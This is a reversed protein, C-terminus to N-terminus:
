GCWIGDASLFIRANGGSVYVAFQSACLSRLAPHWFLFLFLLLFVLVGRARACTRSYLRPKPSLFLVCHKGLVLVQGGVGTLLLSIIMTGTQRGRGTERGTPGEM